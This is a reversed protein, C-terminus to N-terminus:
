FKNSKHKKNIIFLKHYIVTTTTISTVCILYALPLWGEEAKIGYKHNLYQLSQSYDYHM